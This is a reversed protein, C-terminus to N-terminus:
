RGASITAGCAGGPANCSTEIMIASPQDRNQQLRYQGHCDQLIRLGLRVILCRTLVAGRCSGLAGKMGAQQMATWRQRKRSGYPLEVEESKRFKGLCLAKVGDKGQRDLSGDWVEDSVGGTIVDNAVCCSAEQPGHVYIVQRNGVRVRGTNALQSTRSTRSLEANVRSCGGVESGRAHSM